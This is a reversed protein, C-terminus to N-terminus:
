GAPPRPEYSRHVFRVGDWVGFAEWNQGAAIAKAEAMAAADTTAELERAPGAVREDNILSVRM